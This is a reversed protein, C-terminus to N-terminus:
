PWRSFDDHVRAANPYPLGVIALAAEHHAEIATAAIVTAVVAAALAARERADFPLVLIARLKNCGFHAIM